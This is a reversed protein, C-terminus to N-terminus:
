KKNIKNAKIDSLLIYKFSFGSRSCWTSDFCIYCTLLWDFNTQCVQLDIPSTPIELTLPPPRSQHQVPEPVTARYTENDEGLWDDIDTM